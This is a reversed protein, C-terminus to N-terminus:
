GAASTFTNATSSSRQRSTRLRGRRAGPYFTWRATRSGVRVSDPHHSKGASRDANTHPRCVDMVACAHREGGGGGGGVAAVVDDIPM